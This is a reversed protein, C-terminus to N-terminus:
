ALALCHLKLKKAPLLSSRAHGVVCDRRVVWFKFDFPERTFFNEFTRWRATELGDVKDAILFYGEQFLESNM